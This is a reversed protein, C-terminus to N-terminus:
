QDNGRNTRIWNKERHTLFRFHRPIRKLVYLPVYFLTSIPLIHKAWKYQCLLISLVLSLLATLNVTIPEMGSVGVLMALLNAALDAMQLTVLLALPPIGLDLAMALLRIDTQRLSSFLLGPFRRVIMGLHGHEWRTRQTEQATAQTPFTSSVLARSEFVPPFGAEALDIGLQMDEVLEGTALQCNALLSWPFAMGTGTLQCPLGLRALGDPRIRNKLLWAFEAVKLGTAAGPPSHMLYTAQVPRGSAQCTSVLQKLSGTQVECDADIIIVVDPPTAALHRIGHDLAYGKGRLEAHSREIVDAGNQRAIDATQDTCNDAIVLVRANDPLDAMIQQLTHGIGSAENHAPVLVTTRIKSPPHSATPNNTDQDPLFFAALVEITLVMVPLALVAAILWLMTAIM